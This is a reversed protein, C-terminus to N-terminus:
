QIKFREPLEVGFGDALSNIKKLDEPTLRNSVYLFDANGQHTRWVELAWRAGITTHRVERYLNNEKLLKKVHSDEDPAFFLGKWSTGRGTVFTVTTQLLGDWGDYVTTIGKKETSKLRFRDGIVRQVLSNEPDSALIRRVVEELPGGIPIKNM